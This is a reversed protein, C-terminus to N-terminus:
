DPLGIAPLAKWVWTAFSPRPPRGGACSARNDAVTRWPILRSEQFVFGIRGANVQISGSSPQELRAVIRLFTTKGCGSPGLLAMREGQGLALQWRDLVALDGYRKCLGNVALYPDM